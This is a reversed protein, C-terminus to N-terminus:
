AQTSLEAVRRAIEDRIQHVEDLGPGPAVVCVFLVKV